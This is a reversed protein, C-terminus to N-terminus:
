YIPRSMVQDQIQMLNLHSFWKKQHLNSQILQIPTSQSNNWHHCRPSTKMPKFIYLIKSTKTDSFETPQQLFLISCKVNQPHTFGGM